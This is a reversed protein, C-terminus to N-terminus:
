QTSMRIPVLTGVGTRDVDVLSRNAVLPRSADCGELVTSIGTRGSRVGNDVFLGVEPSSAPRNVFATVSNAAPVVVTPAVGGAVM